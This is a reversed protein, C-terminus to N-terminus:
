FYRITQSCLNRNSVKMKEIEEWQKKLQEREDSPGVETDSDSEVKMKKPAWYPVCSSPAKKRKHQYNRDHFEKIEAEPWDYYEITSVEKGQENRTKVQRQFFEPIFVGRMAAPSRKPMGLKKREGASVCKVLHFNQLHEKAKRTLEKVTRNKAEHCIKTFCCSSNRPDEPVDVLEIKKEGLYQHVTNSVFLPNKDFWGYHIQTFITLFILM